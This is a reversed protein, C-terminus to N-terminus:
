DVASPQICCASRSSPRASPAAWCLSPRRAWGILPSAQWALAWRSSPMPFWCISVPLAGLLDPPVFEQLTSIWALGLTAQAAGQIFIALSVGAVGVPLGVALLMLSVTIWAGYSLPGRRRLRTHRGLWIAAVISGIASLTTLLAYISVNEGFRQKVLLPLAAQLPGSIFLTSPSALAITVWLWPSQLVASFGKRLDQLASSPEAAVTRRQMTARAQSIAAICAASIVFSIGDLAFALSTGGLAVIAAGIGPGIIQAAQLSISRLSNAGPLSEAPVIDPIVATYAPSFFAQACGFIASMVFVHWLALWQQFALFAVLAVVIGRLLDSALMLRLRPLRDVVVGGVLLFLLTPAQSCILVIGMVAASGTKQLVWWALAITYLSDGLRSITQGSWLLAFSRNSLARFLSM